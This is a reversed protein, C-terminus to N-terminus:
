TCCTRWLVKTSGETHRRETLVVPSEMCLEDCNNSPRNEVTRVSRKKGLVSVCLLIYCFLIDLADLM